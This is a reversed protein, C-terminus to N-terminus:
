RFWLYLVNMMILFALGLWAWFRMWKAPRFSQSSKHHHLLRMNWWALIPASLFSLITAFDVLALMSSKLFLLILFSGGAFIWIFWLWSKENMRQENSESAGYFRMARALVRPYADMVTLLTSFITVFVSIAIIPFSWDGLLGVYLNVFSGAFAAGGEPLSGKGYLVVGGLLVFFVALVMSSHYGLRFDFRLQADSVTENERKAVTWMSQWVSADIPTPMWGAFALLFVWGVKDFVFRGTSALQIREPDGFAAILAVVTTLVLLLMIVKISKDLASFRGLSLLLACTLLSIGSVVAAPVEPFLLFQVIGTFVSTIAVLIPFMTAATLVLFAPLVWPHMRGYGDVLDKGSHRAYRSAYSFFPYKLLNVLLVFGILGFGYLAGARTSQVVHSVGVAAGAYLLGPGLGALWNKM